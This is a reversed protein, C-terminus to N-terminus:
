QIQLKTSFGLVWVREVEAVNGEASATFNPANIISGGNLDYSTTTSINDSNFTKISHNGTIFPTETFNEGEQENYLDTMLKDSKSGAVAKITVNYQRGTYNRAIGVGGNAFATRTTLEGQQEGVVFDGSALDELPIDNIFLTSIVKTDTM